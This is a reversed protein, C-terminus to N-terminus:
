LRELLVNRVERVMKALGCVYIDCDTGGLGELIGGIHGQVYGRKGQWASSARSLTAHFAFWPAREALTEFEDRYLIDSENRIGFLLVIPQPSNGAVETLMSRFPAIGTGAAIM